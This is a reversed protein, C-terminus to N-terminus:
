KLLPKNEIKKISDVLCNIPVGVRRRILEANDRLIRLTGSGVTGLGIIGVTIKQKMPTRVRFDSTTFNSSDLM